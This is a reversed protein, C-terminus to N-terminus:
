ANTIKVLSRCRPCSTYYRKKRNVYKGKYKWSYKCKPCTLQIGEMEEKTENNEM